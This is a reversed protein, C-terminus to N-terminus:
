GMLISQVLCCVLLAALMMPIMALPAWVHANPWAANDRMALAFAFTLLGTLTCLLSVVLTWLGLVAVM